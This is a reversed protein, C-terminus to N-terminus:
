YTKTVKDRIKGGVLAQFIQYSLSWTVLSSTHFCGPEGFLLDYM